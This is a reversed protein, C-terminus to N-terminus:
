ANQGGAWQSLDTAIHARRETEVKVFTPEAVKAYREFAAKDLKLAKPYHERCHDLAWSDEYVLRTATKIEVAPHPHQEGSEVALYRLRADVDQALKSADDYIAKQAIYVSNMKVAEVMSDFVAKSKRMQERLYALRQVERELDTM